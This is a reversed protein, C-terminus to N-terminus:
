RTAGYVFAAIDDIQATSLVHGFAVMTTAYDAAASASMVTSGGNVIASILVPEALSTGNLNPGLTGHAGAAALAHCEACNAIFLSRGAAANGVLTAASAPAVVTLTGSSTASGAATTVVVKGSTASSPVTATVKMASVVKFTVAKGGITVAKVSTFNKGTITLPALPKVSLPAFGSISPKAATAAAIASGATTTVTVALVVAVVLKCARPM